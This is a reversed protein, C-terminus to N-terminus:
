QLKVFEFSLSRESIEQLSFSVDEIQPHLSEHGDCEYDVKNTAAYNDQKIRLMVFGFGEKFLPHGHQTRFDILFWTELELLKLWYKENQSSDNHYRQVEEPLTELQDHHDVVDHQTYDIKSV